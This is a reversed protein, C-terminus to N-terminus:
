EQCANILWNVNPDRGREGLNDVGCAQADCCYLTQFPQEREMRDKDQLTECVREFTEDEPLLEKLFRERCLAICHPPDQVDPAVFGWIHGTCGTM